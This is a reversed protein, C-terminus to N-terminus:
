RIHEKLIKAHNKQLKKSPKILTVYGKKRCKVRYQRIEFGLFDFGVKGDNDLAKLTHRIKTKTNSLELGIQKLWNEIYEKAKEVIELSEHMVVFDDAYRVISMNMQSAKRSTYDKTKKLYILFEEELERKTDYELGHLAINALLPSIVGGQPTGMKTPLLKKGEMIGSKLWIKITRRL